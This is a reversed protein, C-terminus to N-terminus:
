KDQNQCFAVLRRLMPTDANAPLPTKETVYDWLDPDERELVGAFDALDDATMDPVAMDAFRGMVLDMERTGRHWARFILRRQLDNLQPM